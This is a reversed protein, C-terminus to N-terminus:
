SHKIMSDQRQKEFIYQIVQEQISHIEGEFAVSHVYDSVRVVKVPLSDINGHGPLEFTLRLESGNPLKVPLAMGLGGGSMDIIKGFFIDGVAGNEMQGVEVPISVDIRVWNRQQTRSLQTAHSLVLAGQSDNLVQARFAYEADGPRTMNMRIWTGASVQPGDPRAIFWQSEEVGLVLCMGKHTAKGNEPIQVICKQGNDFQRTSVFAIERSLPLFGLVKRIGRINKLKEKPMSEIRKSKYYKELSNEFVHPSKIISDPDQLGSELAIEKLLAIGSQSLNFRKMNYDFKKWALELLENKTKNSRHIEYFVVAVILLTILSILIIITVLSLDKDVSKMISKAFQEYASISDAQALVITNLM